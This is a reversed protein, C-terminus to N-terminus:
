ARRMSARARLRDRASVPAAAPAGTAPAAAPAAAPATRARARKDGRIAAFMDAVAARTLDERRTTVTTARTPAVMDVTDVDDAVTPVVPVRVRAPDTTRTVTAYGLHAAYGLDDTAVPTVRTVHRFYRADSAQWTTGDARTAQWTRGAAAATRMARVNKRDTVYSLGLVDRDITVGHAVVRARRAVVPPLGRRTRRVRVRRVATADPHDTVLSAGPDAPFAYLNPRTGNEATDLMDLAVVSVADAWAHFAAAAAIGARERSLGDGIGTCSVVRSWMVRGSRASQVMGAAVADAILAPAPDDTAATVADVADAVITRMPLVAVADAPQRLAWQAVAHTADDAGDAHGDQWAGALIARETTAGDAHMTPADPHAVDAVDDAGM